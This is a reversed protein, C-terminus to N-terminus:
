QLELSIRTGSGPMSRISFEAGILRARNTMSRMGIGSTSVVANQKNEVDFGVGDDEIDMVFKHDQRYNLSVRVRTARAHKLINNMIEQFIRFLFVSKQQDFPHPEGEVEFDIQFLDAKRLNELDIRIAEQLGIEAIRDSHLSKNLDALDFIAKALMSRSNQIGEYAIHEKEIPLIALWVKVVSLVQGINDHLEQAITRFTGEQIELQAQLLEHDFQDRMEALQRQQRIQRRQYLFLISIIFSVLLLALGIGVLSIVFVEHNQDPM